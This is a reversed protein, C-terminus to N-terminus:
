IVETGMKEVTFVILEITYLAAALLIHKFQLNNRMNDAKRNQLNNKYVTRLCYSSHELRQLTSKSAVLFGRKLSESEISKADSFVGTSKLELM